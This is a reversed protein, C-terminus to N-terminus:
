GRNDHRVEAIIENIEDLTMESTGNIVAQEQAERLAKRLLFGGDDENQLAAIIPFPIGQTMVAQRFFVNVATSLTMGLKSFLSEADKKIDQDMRITVNITEAM